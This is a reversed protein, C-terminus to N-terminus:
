FRWIHLRTQRRDDVQVIEDAPHDPVDFSNSILVSGAKMEAKAKEYFKPMPVPSLFCYVVDFNGLDCEWMNLRQVTGNLASNLCYRLWSIVFPIPATEVGVFYIDPRKKALHVLVGGTGSGIDVFRGRAEGEAQAQPPLLRELATWTTRNTLYLPVRDSLVNWYVLGIALAVCLYIWSPLKLALGLVLALPLLVQVILWLGKINFHSGIIAALLGSALAIGWIPIYIEQSAALLMAGGFTLIAAIIQALFIPFLPSKFVTVGKYRNPVPYGDSPENGPM